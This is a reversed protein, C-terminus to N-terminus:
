KVILLKGNLEKSNYKRFIPQQSEIGSYFLIM